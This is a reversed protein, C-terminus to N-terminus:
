SYAQYAGGSRRRERAAIKPVPAHSCNRRRAHAVCARIRTLEYLIEEVADLRDDRELIPAALDVECGSFHRLWM